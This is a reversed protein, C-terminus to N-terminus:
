QSKKLTAAIRWLEEVIADFSRIGEKDLDTNMFVIVGIEKSPDYYMKTAVGPDGGSHGLRPGHARDWFIGQNEKEFDVNDPKASASFQGRVMEAVSEEKLIRAGNVEGGNLICILFKSLDILTTRVGGDPYTIFGYLEYAKVSDESIYYPLSHNQVNIESLFWGTDDMHLPDFIIRKSYKNLQEGSVREVIYGALGAGINSYKQHAGPKTELFNDKSYHKGGPDFYDKLFDGLSEPADGGFHYTAGYVSDHDNIGSSHTSLNRLTIKENPFYPNIVKFPLYTNVDEDLSLKGDEVARM